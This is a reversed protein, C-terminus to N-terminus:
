KRQARRRAPRDEVPTPAAESPEAQVQYPRGAHLRELGSPLHKALARALEAGRLDPYVRLQAEFMAALAPENPLTVGLTIVQHRPEPPPPAAHADPDDTEGALYAVTTRLERALKFLHPSWRADSHVLGNLTAQPMESRRALEAQTLNM